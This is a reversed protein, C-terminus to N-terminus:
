TFPIEEIGYNAFNGGYVETNIMTSYDTYLNTGVYNFQGSYVASGDALMQVGHCSYLAYVTHQAGPELPSWRYNTSVQFSVPILLTPDYYGQNTNLLFVSGCPAGGSYTPETGIIGRDSDTIAVVGFPAAYSMNQMDQKLQPLLASIESADRLYHDIAPVVYEGTLSQLSYPDGLNLTATVTIVDGIKLDKREPFEYIVKSIPNDGSVNNRCNLYGTPATGEYWIYVGNDTNFYAPDFADVIIPEQLGSVTVTFKNGGVKLKLSKALDTSYDVTVTIKDGNSLGASKDASPRVSMEFGTATNLNNWYKEEGMAAMIETELQYEDVSLSLTGMGNMGSFDVRINNELNLSKGGGSGCGTLVVLCLALILLLTLKKKM